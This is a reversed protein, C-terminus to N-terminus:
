GRNKKEIQRLHDCWWKWIYFKFVVVKRQQPDSNREDVAEQDGPKIRWQQMISRKDGVRGHIDFTTGFPAALM